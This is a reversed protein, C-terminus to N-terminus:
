THRDPKSLTRRNLFGGTSRMAGSHGESPVFQGIRSAVSAVLAEGALVLAVDNTRISTPVEVLSEGSTVGVQEIFNVLAQCESEHLVDHILQAGAVGAVPSAHLTPPPEPLLLNTKLEWAPAEGSEQQGGFGSRPRRLLEYDTGRELKTYLRSLAQMHTRSQTLEADESRERM